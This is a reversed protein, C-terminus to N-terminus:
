ILILGSVTTGTDYIKKICIPLITGGKVGVFTIGTAGAGDLGGVMDVKLDGDSAIYVGRSYTFDTVDASGTFAIANKAPDSALPKSAELTPNALTNPM